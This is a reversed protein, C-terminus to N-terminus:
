PGQGMSGFTLSSNYWTAGEVLFSFFRKRAVNQQHKISPVAVERLKHLSGGRGM